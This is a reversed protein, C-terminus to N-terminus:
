LPMTQESSGLGNSSRGRAATGWRPIEGMADRVAELAEALIKDEENAFVRVGSDFAQWPKEDVECTTWKGGLYDDGDVQPPPPVKGHLVYDRVAKATCHSVASATCHGSAKQELLGADEFRLAMKVAAHLPTVPDYTNSLFLVAFETRTQNRHQPAPHPPSVDWGNCQLMLGVWIDAFQSLKAMSEYRDRIEAPTLNVPSTKDGCMIARQADSVVNLEPSGLERCLLQLDGFLPGLYEFQGEYLVNLITALAPFLLVPQYLVTFTIGRILESRLLVPYFYEPHTFSVPHADLERLIQDYRKRVDEPGTDSSRYLACKPGVAVCYEFLQGLVKDADYLSEQWMPSTYLDADVVGDLIVRGVREPYMSAFTAGLYTGYSFGWYVLKGKTPNVTEPVIGASATEREVWREWADVISVMDAAVHTTAAHGLISDGGLQTNKARCLNNVSRHSTDIFKMAVDSSNLAGFAAHMNMWEIRHSLGKAHDETCGKCSPPTAWCDAIPTTFGIGRPDFGIVPRDDGLIDQFASAGARALLVGSGGPGGPNLLLPSKPSALAATANKAPLM